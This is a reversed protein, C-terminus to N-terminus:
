ATIMLHDAKNFAQNHSNLIAQVNTQGISNQFSTPVPDGGSAHKGKPVKQRRKACIRAKRGTSIPVSVTIPKLIVLGKPECFLEVQTDGAIRSLHIGAGDASATDTERVKKPLVMLRGNQCPGRAAARM